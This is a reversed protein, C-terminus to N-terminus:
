QMPPEPLMHKDLMELAHKIGAEYGEHYEESEEQEQMEVAHKISAKMDEKFAPIWEREQAPKSEMRWAYEAGQCFAHSYQEIEQQWCNPDLESYEDKWIEEAFKKFDPKQPEQKQEVVPATLSCKSRQYPLNNEAVIDEGEYGVCTHSREHGEVYFTDGIKILPITHFGTANSQGVVPKEVKPLIRAVLRHPEEMKECVSHCPMSCGRADPGCDPHNEPGIDMQYGELTYLIGDCFSHEDPHPNWNLVKLLYHKVEEHNKVKIASAKAREITQQKRAENEEDSDEIFSIPWIPETLAYLEGERLFVRPNQTKM